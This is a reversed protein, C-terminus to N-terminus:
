GMCDDTGADSGNETETADSGTENRMRIHVTDPQAPVTNGNM